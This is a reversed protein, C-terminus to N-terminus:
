CLLTAQAREHPILCGGRSSHCIHCMPQVDVTPVFVDRCVTDGFAHVGTCKLENTVRRPQHFRVSATYMILYIICPHENREIVSRQIIRSFIDTYEAQREGNNRAKGHVRRRSYGVRCEQEVEADDLLSRLPTPRAEARSNRVERSSVSLHGDQLQKRDEAADKTFPGSQQSSCEGWANGIVKIISTDGEEKNDAIHPRAKANQSSDRRAIPGAGSHPADCPTDGVSTAFRPVLSSTSAPKASSSVSPFCIPAARSRHSPSLSPKASRCDSSIGYDSSIGCDAVGPPWITTEPSGALLLKEWASM